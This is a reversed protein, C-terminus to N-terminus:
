KTGACAMILFKRFALTHFSTFDNLIQVPLSIFSESLWRIFLNLDTVAFISDLAVVAVSEKAPLKHNTREPFNKSHKIGTVLLLTERSM